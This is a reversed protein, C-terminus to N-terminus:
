PGLTIRAGLILWIGLRLLFIRLSIIWSVILGAVLIWNILALLIIGVSLGDLLVTRLYNLRSISLGLIGDGLRLLFLTLDVFGPLTFFVM